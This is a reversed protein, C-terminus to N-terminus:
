YIFSEKKKKMSSACSYYFFTNRNRKKAKSNEVNSGIINEMFQAMSVHVYSLYQSLKPAM